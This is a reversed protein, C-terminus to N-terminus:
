KFLIDKFKRTQDWLIQYFNGLTRFVPHWRGYMYKKHTPMGGKAMLIYPPMNIKCVTCHEIDICAQKMTQEITFM